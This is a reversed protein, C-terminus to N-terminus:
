PRFPPAPARVTAIYLDFDNRKDAVGTPHRSSFAIVSGSGDISPGISPEMWVGDPDGSVRAITDSERDYVFVDWLLNIDEEPVLNSAESQFVVFRGNSSFSPNASSGNARGGRESRTIVRTTNAHLDALVVHNLGNMQGVFAVYLGDGSMTPAWGSGVRRTVNLQTDRVFVDSAPLRQGSFPPRAAFSVYRGDASAGPSNSEVPRRDRATVDISVRRTEGSHLGISYVDRASTFVLFRGDDTISPQRGKGATRTVDQIRDRWVIEGGSEYVVYRGDASIGPHICDIDRAVGISEFTVQQGIRDLVYVDSGRDTDAVALQAYTVFAIYRGDASVSASPRDLGSRYRDHQDITLMASMVLAVAVSRM